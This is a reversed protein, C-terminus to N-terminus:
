WFKWWSKGSGQGPAAMNLAAFQADQEKEKAIRREERLQEKRQERAKKEADKKNLIEMARMMGEKEAQRKYMCYQYM